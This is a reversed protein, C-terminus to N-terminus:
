DSELKIWNIEPVIICIEYLTIPFYLLLICLKGTTNTLVVYYDDIIQDAIILILVLPLDKIIFNPGPGTNVFSKLILIM